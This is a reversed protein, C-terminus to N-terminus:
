RSCPVSIYLKKNAANELDTIDVAKRVCVDLDERVAGRKLLSKYVEIFFTFVWDTSMYEM